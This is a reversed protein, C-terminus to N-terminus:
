QKVFRTQSIGQASRLVLLYMGGSLQSVDVSRLDNAYTGLWKGEVTYITADTIPFNANIHLVDAVPVPFVSIHMAEADSMGTILVNQCASTITCNNVTLEVAFNGSGMPTFSQGNENAIPANGNDCDVWQYGAGTLTATLTAGVM